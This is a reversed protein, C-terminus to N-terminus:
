RGKYRWYYKIVRVVYKRTELYTVSRRYRKVAGEGANYAALAHSINKYKTLLRRLHRTGATVNVLPDYLDKAASVGYERATTPLLQMLGIAGAPSVAYPNYGSEATIVAHVLAPEIRYERAIRNIEPTLRKRNTWSIQGPQPTEYGGPATTSGEQATGLLPVSVLTLLLLKRM